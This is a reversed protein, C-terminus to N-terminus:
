KDVACYTLMLLAQCLDLSRSKNDKGLSGIVSKQICLHLFHQMRVVGPIVSSCKM